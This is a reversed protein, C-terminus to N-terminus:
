STNMRASHVSVSTRTDSHHSLRFVSQQSSLWPRVVFNHWGLAANVRAQLAPYQGQLDGNRTGDSYEIYWAGFVGLQLRHVRKGGTGLAGLARNLSQPLFAMVSPQGLENAWFSGDPGLVVVINQIKHGLSADDLWAKLAPYKGNFHAVVM